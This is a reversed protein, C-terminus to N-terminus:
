PVDPVARRYPACYSWHERINQTERVTIKSFFLSSHCRNQVLSIRVLLSFSNLSDVGNGSGRGDPPMHAAACRGCTEGQRSTNRTERSLRGVSFRFRADRRTDSGSREPVWRAVCTHVRFSPVPAVTEFAHVESSVEGSRRPGRFKAGRTSSTSHRSWTSRVSSRM